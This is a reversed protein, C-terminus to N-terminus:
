PAPRDLREILEDALPVGWEPSLIEKKPEEPDPAKVYRKPKCNGGGPAKVYRKPKCNGGGPAKVYRTGSCNGTDPAVVYRSGSCVAASYEIGPSEPAANKAAETQAQKVAHATPTEPIWDTRKRDAM